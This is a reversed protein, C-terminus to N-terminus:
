RCSWALRGPSTLGAWTSVASTSSSNVKTPLLFFLGVDACYNIARRAADHSILDAELARRLEQLRDDILRWVSLAVVTIREVGIPLQAVPALVCRHPILTFGVRHFAGISIQPM